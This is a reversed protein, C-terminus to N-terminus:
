VMSVGEVASSGFDVGKEEAVHFSSTDLNGSLGSVGDEGDGDTEIGVAHGHGKHQDVRFPM